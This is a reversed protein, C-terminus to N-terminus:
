SKHPCHRRASRRNTRKCRLSRRRKDATTDATKDAMAKAFAAAGRWARRVGSSQDADRTVKDAGRKADLMKACAYVARTTPMSVGLRDALEIVAGVVADARFKRADRLKFLIQEGYLKWCARFVLSAAAPQGM